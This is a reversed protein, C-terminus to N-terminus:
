KIKSGMLIGCTNIAAKQSLAPIYVKTASNNYPQLAKVTVSSPLVAAASRSLATTAATAPNGQTCSEGQWHRQSSSVFLGPDECNFTHKIWHTKNGSVFQENIKTMLQSAVIRESASSMLRHILLLWGVTTLLCPSCLEPTLEAM